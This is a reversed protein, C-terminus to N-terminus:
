SSPAARPHRDGTDGGSWLAFPFARQRTWMVEVTGLLRDLSLGTPEQGWVIAEIINPALMALGLIRRVYSRNIGLNQALATVSAYRGSEITL